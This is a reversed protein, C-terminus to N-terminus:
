RGFPSKTLSTLPSALKLSTALRFSTTVLRSIFFDSDTLITSYSCLVWNLSRGVAPSSDRDAAIQQSERRRIYASTYDEALSDRM